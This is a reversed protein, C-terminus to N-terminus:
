ATLPLGHCAFSVLSERWVHPKFKKMLINAPIEAVTYPVFFLIVAINYKNGSTMDLDQLMGLTAANAINVKDLFSLFFLGVLCPMLHWDVRAMLKRETIGHLEPLPLEDDSSAHLSDPSSTSGTKEATM